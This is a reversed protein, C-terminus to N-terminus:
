ISMSKTDKKSAQQSIEEVQKSKKFELAQDRFHKTAVVMNYKSITKQEKVVKLENFINCQPCTM